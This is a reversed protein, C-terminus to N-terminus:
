NGVERQSSIDKEDSALAIYAWASPKDIGFSEDGNRCFSFQLQLINETVHMARVNIINIKQRPRRFYIGASM